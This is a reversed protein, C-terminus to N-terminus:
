TFSRILEAKLRGVTRSAHIISGKKVNEPIIEPKFDGRGVWGIVVPCTRMYEKLTTGLCALGAETCFKAILFHDTVHIGIEVIRNEELPIRLSKTLRHVAKENIGAVGAVTRAQKENLRLL